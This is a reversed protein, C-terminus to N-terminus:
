ICEIEGAAFDHWSEGVRKFPPGPINQREIKCHIGVASVLIRKRESHREVLFPLIEARGLRRQRLHLWVAPNRVDRVQGRIFESGARIFDVDADNLTGGFHLLLHRNLHVLPRRVPRRARIRGKLTRFVIITLSAVTNTRITTPPDQRHCPIFPGCAYSKRFFTHLIVIVRRLNAFNPIPAAYESLASDSRPCPSDVCRALGSGLDAGEPRGKWARKTSTAFSAPRRAGTM